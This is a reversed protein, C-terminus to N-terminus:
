REVGASELVRACLSRWREVGKALTWDAALESSARGFRRRLDASSLLEDLASALATVGDVPVVFGNVGERVLDDAAAVGRTVVIPLGAAVAENVVVGWGDHRSPLVFLDAEAFLKPLEAPQRFGLFHVRGAIRDPTAARYRELEPGAGVLVLQAEAHREAVTVFAQLLPDVGKREIMQGSFLVTVRSKDHRRGAAARVFPETDCHYPINAVPARDNLHRYAPLARSGIAAIADARAIPRQLAWRVARGLPGRRRMAPVEGWFVWPCRHRLWRMVRQATLSSYDSVVVLDSGFADLDRVATPNWHASPGLWDLTRGDLIREFPALADPRWDRDPAAATYYFVSVEFEADAALAGLFQRQYPSPM